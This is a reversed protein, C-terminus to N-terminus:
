NKYGWIAYSLFLFLWEEEESVELEAVQGAQYRKSKESVLEGKAINKQDAIKRRKQKRRDKEYEEDFQKNKEMNEAFDRDVGM